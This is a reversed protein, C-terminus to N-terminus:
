KTAFASQSKKGLRQAALKIDSIRTEGKKLELLERQMNLKDIFRIVQLKDQANAFHLEIYKELFGSFLSILEEKKEVLSSSKYEKKILFSEFILKSIDEFEDEKIKNLDEIQKVATM